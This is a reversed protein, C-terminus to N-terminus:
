RMRVHIRASGKALTSLREREIARALADGLRALERLQPDPSSRLTEAQERHQAPTMLYRRQSRNMRATEV